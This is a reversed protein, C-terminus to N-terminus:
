AGKFGGARSRPRWRAIIYSFSAPEDEPQPWETAIVVLGRKEPPVAAVARSSGTSSLKMELELYLQLGDPQREEKGLHEHKRLIQKYV